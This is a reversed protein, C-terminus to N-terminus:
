YPHDAGIVNAHHKWMAWTGDRTSPTQEYINGYIVQHRMTRGKQLTGSLKLNKAQTIPPRSNINTSLDKATRTTGM